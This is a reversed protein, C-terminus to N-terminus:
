VLDVISDTTDPTKSTQKLSVKGTEYASDNADPEAEM